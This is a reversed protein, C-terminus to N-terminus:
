ALRFATVDIVHDGIKLKGDCIKTSGTPGVAPAALIVIGKQPSRNSKKFGGYNNGSDTDLAELKRMLECAHASKALADLDDGDLEYQYDSM